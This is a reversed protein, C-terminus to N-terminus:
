FMKRHRWAMRLTEVWGALRSQRYRDLNALLFLLFFLPWLWGIRVFCGVWKRSWPFRICAHALFHVNRIRDRDPIALISKYFASNPIDCLTYPDPLLGLTASREGLATGPFPIYLNTYAVRTGARINIDVTKLADELTETPLCFMNTTQLVLGHKKLIAGARLIQEDSIHKKLVENRVRESGSEVGFLVAHCGSDALLEALEDDVHDARTQCQFPLGIEQKYRPLFDKLWARDLTFMDDDMWVLGVEYREIERKLERMFNDVTKKRVLNGKGEFVERVKDSVCYSCSYPCGRGSMFFHVRDAALLPYRDFYVGKDEVLTDDFEVFPTREGMHIQGGADRWAFGPIDGSLKEGAVLHALLTPLTEEAESHAVIDTVTDALIKEPYFMGHFGGVIIPTEPYRRKLAAVMGILWQHEVSIVSLGIVSPNLAGAASVTDRELADILVEARLGKRKLRADLAVIGQYPLAFQQVFLIDCGSANM